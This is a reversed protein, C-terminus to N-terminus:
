FLVYINFVNPKYPIIVVIKSCFNIQLNAFFPSPVFIFKPKSKGLLKYMKCIAEKTSKKDIRETSTGIKRWEERFEILEKEQKKTLKDIRTPM